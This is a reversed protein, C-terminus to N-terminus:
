RNLLDDVSTENVGRLIRIAQAEDWIELEYDGTKLKMPPADTKDLVWEGKAKYSKEEEEFFPLGERASERHQRAWRKITSEPIDLIDCIEDRDEGDNYILDVFTQQLEERYYKRCLKRQKSIEEGYKDIAAKLKDRM